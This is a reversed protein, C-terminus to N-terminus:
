GANFAARQAEPKMFVEGDEVRGLYRDDRLRIIWVIQSGERARSAYASQTNPNQEVYRIGMFDLYYLGKGRFFNVAPLLNSPDLAAIQPIQLGQEHSLIANIILKLEEFQDLTGVRQM